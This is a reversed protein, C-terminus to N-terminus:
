GKNPARAELEADKLLVKAVQQDALAVAEWRWLAEQLSALHALQTPTLVLGPPATGPTPRLFLPEGEALARELKEQRIQSTNMLVDVGTDRVAADRQERAVPDPM